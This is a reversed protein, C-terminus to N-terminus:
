SSMFALSPGIQNSWFACKRFEPITDANPLHSEFSVLSQIKRLGRWRTITSLISSRCNSISSRSPAPKKRVSPAIFTVMATWFVSRDQFVHQCCYSNFTKKWKILTTFNLIIRPLMTRFQPQHSNSRVPSQCAAKFRIINVSKGLFGTDLLTAFGCFPHIRLDAYPWRYQHLSCQMCQYWTPIRNQATDLSFRLLLHLCEPM